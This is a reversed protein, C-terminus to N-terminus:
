PKAKSGAKAFRRFQQAIVKFDYVFEKWAARRSAEDPARLLSSPHVTAMCWPALDSQVPTGRM